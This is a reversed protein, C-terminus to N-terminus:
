PVRNLWQATGFKEAVKAEALALEEDTIGAPVAGYRTTFTEMM